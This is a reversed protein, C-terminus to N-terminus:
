CANKGNNKDDDDDDDHISCTHLLGQVCKVCMLENVRMPFRGSTVDSEGSVLSSTTSLTSGLHRSWLHDVPSETGMRRSFCRWPWTLVKESARVGLGTGMEGPGGPWHSCTGKLGAGEGWAQHSCRQQERSELAGSLMVLLHSLFIVNRYTHFSILILLKFVYGSNQNLTDIELKATRIQITGKVYHANIISLEFIIKTVDM